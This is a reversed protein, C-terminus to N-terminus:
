NKLRVTWLVVGHIFPVAVFAWRWVSERRMLLGGVVMSAVAVLPFGYFLTYILTRHWDAAQEEAMSGLGFMMLVFGWVPLALGLLLGLVVSEVVFIWQPVM